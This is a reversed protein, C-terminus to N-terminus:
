DERTWNIVDDDTGYRADPGASILLYDSRRVPTPRAKISPDLIFRVFSDEYEPQTLIPGVGVTPLPSINRFIAHYRGDVKGAGFDFGGNTYQGADTGTIIGNDEQWYIGSQVNGPGGGGGSNGTIRFSASNARYYLIPMDWPDMFMRESCAINNPPSDCDLNLIGGEEVLDKLTEAGNKM